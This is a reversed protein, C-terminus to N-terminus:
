RQMGGLLGNMVCDLTNPRMIDEAIYYLRLTQSCCVQEPGRLSNKFLYRKKDPLNLSFTGVNGLPWCDNM